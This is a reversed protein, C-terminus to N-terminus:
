LPQHQLFFPSCRPPGTLETLAASVRTDAPRRDRSPGASGSGGPARCPPAPGGCTHWPRPFWQPEPHYPRGWPLHTLAQTQCRCHARGLSHARFDGLAGAGRARLPSSKLFLQHCLTWPQCTVPAYTQPGGRNEWPVRLSPLAHPATPFATPGPPKQHSPCPGPAGTPPSLCPWLPELPLPPTQPRWHSPLPLGWCKLLYLKSRTGGRRGRVKSQEESRPETGGLCVVELDPPIPLKRAKLPPSTILEARKYIGSAPTEKKRLSRLGGADGPPWLSAM